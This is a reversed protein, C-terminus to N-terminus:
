SKRKSKKGVRDFFSLASMIRNGGQRIDSRFEAIDERLNDTELAAQEAIHELYKLIKTVRWFVYAALVGLVVVMVTTVFFFIDMKLFEDM